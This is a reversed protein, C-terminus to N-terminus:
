NSALTSRLRAYFQMNYFGASDLNLLISAKAETGRKRMRAKVWNWIFEFRIWKFKIHYEIQHGASSRNHQTSDAVSGDGLHKSKLNSKNNSEANTIECKHEAKTCTNRKYGVSATKCKRYGNLKTTYISVCGGTRIKLQKNCHSLNHCVSRVTAQHRHWGSTPAEIYQWNQMLVFWNGALIPM